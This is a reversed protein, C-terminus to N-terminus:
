ARLGGAGPMNQVIVTPQGPIHNGLHRALLRAYADYGGGVGYGCIITITKSKYFDQARALSPLLGILASLSLIAVTLSPPGRREGRGAMLATARTKSASHRHLPTPPPPVTFETNPIVGRGTGGGCPPLSRQPSPKRLAVSTSAKITASQAM